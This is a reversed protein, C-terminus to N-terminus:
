QLADLALNLGLVNVTNEGLIGLIRRHTNQQILAEVQELSIGRAAAVRAAQYEAAEISIDADLGSASSTVLDVPIPLPNSPDAEQLATMRALVQAELDPNMVSFNSGGSASANYPTGSTASIRGWFYQPQDFQQGILESGIILNDMTILSGNAQSAFLLQSIGTIMLPYLVGTIVVFCVLFVVVSRIIKIM